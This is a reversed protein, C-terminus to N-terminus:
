NCCEKTKKENLKLRRVNEAENRKGQQQEGEFPHTTIFMKNIENLAM